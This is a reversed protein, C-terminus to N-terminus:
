GNLPYSSILGTRIKTNSLLFQGSSSSFVAGILPKAKPPNKFLWAEGILTGYPWKFKGDRYCKATKLKPSILEETSVVTREKIKRLPTHLSGDLVSSTNVNIAPSTLLFSTNELTQGASIKLLMDSQWISIVPWELPTYYHMHTVFLRM